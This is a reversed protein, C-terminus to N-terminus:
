IVYIGKKFSNRLLVKRKKVIILIKKKKIQIFDQPGWLDWWDLRQGYPYMLGGCIRLRDSKESGMQNSSFIILGQFNLPLGKIKFNLSFNHQIGRAQQSQTRARILDCGKFKLSAYGYTVIVISFKLNAHSHYKVYVFTVADKEMDRKGNWAGQIKFWRNEFEYGDCNLDAHPHRFDSCRKMDKM